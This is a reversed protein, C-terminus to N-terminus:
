MAGYSGTELSTLEVFPEQMAALVNELYSSKDLPLLRPVPHHPALRAVCGAHIERTNQSHLRIALGPPTPSGFCYKELTSMRAGTGAM